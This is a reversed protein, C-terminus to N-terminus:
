RGSNRKESMMRLVHELQVRGDGEPATDRWREIEKEASLLAKATAVRIEQHLADLRVTVQVDKPSLEIRRIREVAEDTIEDLTLADETAEERCLMGNSAFDHEDICGQGM